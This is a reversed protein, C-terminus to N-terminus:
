VSKNTDLCSHLQNKKVSRNALPIIIMTTTTTTTNTIIIIIIIVITTSFVKPVRHKLCQAVFGFTAPEIGSPTM